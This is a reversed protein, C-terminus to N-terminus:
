DLVATAEIEILFEPVALASVGIWTSAPPDSRSFLERLAGGVAAASETQYNVIYIRLAVVDDLTGGAAEVAAQVNRLAQRAQELLSTGGVIKKQADWATQGSIFATRKGSAVVIQSFGYPLSPFLTKPNVHQKPM